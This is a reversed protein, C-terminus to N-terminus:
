IQLAIGRLDRVTPFNVPNNTRLVMKLAFKDFGVHQTNATFDNYNLVGAPEGTAPTNNAFASQIYQKTLPPGYIFERYLKTEETEANPSSLKDTNNRYDLKTWLKSDFPESDTTSNQFKGYIDITTGNPRYGTVYVQLDESIQTLVVVKSVYRAKANGYRTHENTNDNNIINQIFNFTRTGLDVVPSLGNDSTELSLVFTASGNAGYGGQTLENSYSRWVREKDSYDYLQENITSVGTTDKTFSYTSNSTGYYKQVIGTGAPELYSFKPVFGHYIPDDITSIVCNAILTSATIQTIDSQDNPRFIRINSYNPTSTSNTFKGNSNELFLIGNVEDFSQVSATPFLTNNSTLFSSLNTSNAVYVLDGPSPAIGSTKRYIGTVSLYEEKANRFVAKGTSSNFQAKYFNFKIDQSQYPTWSRGNSAAYVIGMYPQRNIANGTLKDTAGVESIWMNYGPNTGEPKLYWFYDQNGQLLIPTNFTFITEASSDESINVSEPPLYAEGYVKNGDPVGAITGCIRCTVGMSDSKTKFYVGIGTVYVGPIQNDDALYSILFTQGVPDCPSKDGAKNHVLYQNVYYTHDGDLKFNYVQQQPQDKYAEISQVITYTGDQMEIEDGIELKTVNLHDLHSELRRTESPDISKWGDKTMIPHESTMLKGLNNIGYLDPTRIGNDLMQHDFEMVTNIGTQGLLKEGIKVDEINKKSGDAMTVQSGAVFCSGRPEPPSIDVTTTRSDSFYTTNANKVETQTFTPEIISFSVNKKTVSLGSATYVTDADTLISGTATLDDVNVVRMTRDGTRFTDAPLWFHFTAKGRSNSIIPAGKAGTSVFVGGEDGITLEKIKSFDTDTNPLQYIPLPTAPSCYQSVPKGDFYVYLRTNPMMGRAEVAIKKARMYPLVATNTVLDGLNENRTSSGVKIDKTTTTTTQSYNSVTVTTRLNNSTSTQSSVDILKPKGQITTVDKFVGTAVLDKFPQAIDISINQPAEMTTSNSFDFAPMLTLIGHYHYFSETINRYTSAYPNGVVKVSDYDLMLLRGAVKINSSTSKELTFRHFLQNFNPRAHSQGSDIGINFELDNTRGISGDSFPEAFIGSKMREINGSADTISLTRTDLALANLVTYYEINKIREELAAIDRMTYGKNNKAVQVRVALDNRNYTM